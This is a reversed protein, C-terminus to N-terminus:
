LRNIEKKVGMEVVESGLYAFTQKSIIYKVGVCTSTVTNKCHAKVNQKPKVSYIM